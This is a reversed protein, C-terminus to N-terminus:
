QRGTVVAAVALAVAVGSVAGCTIRLAAIDAPDAAAVTLVVVGAALFLALTIAAGLAITVRRRGAPATTHTDTLFSESMAPSSEETLPGPDPTM